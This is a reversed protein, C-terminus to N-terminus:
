ALAARGVASTIARRAYVRVLHAKYEASGYLDELVTLDDAASEAAAAIADAGGDTGALAASVAVAPTPKVGAGTVAVRAVAIGDGTMRVWAAAGAVPYDHRGGRRGLKDYASAEGAAAAPFRVEVVIEDPRLASTLTDVFFEAAPISRVGDLSRAVITAGLALVAGPEDAIADAHALSGAVTGRNRVQVDGVWSAAEGLAEAHQNVLPHRAAVAHTVLPGLVLEDAELRVEDLGPVGGIDVVTAPSLLRLKMMSLLSQGGALVKADPREVLARLAEDVSTAAIYDFDRPYVVVGADSRGGAHGM